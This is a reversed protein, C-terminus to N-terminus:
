SYDDSLLEALYPYKSMVKAAVVLADLYECAKEVQKKKPESSDFRFPSPWENALGFLKGTLSPPLGMAKTVKETIDDGEAAKILQMVTHGLLLYGHGGICIPTNCLNQEDVEPYVWMGEVENWRSEPIFTDQNYAKPKARLTAKLKNIFKVNPKVAAKKKRAM